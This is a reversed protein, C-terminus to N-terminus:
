SQMDLFEVTALARTMDANRDREDCGRRVPFLKPCGEEIVMARPAGDGPGALHTDFQISGTVTDCREETTLVDM